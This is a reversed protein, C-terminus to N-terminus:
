VITDDFEGWLLISSCSFNWYHCYVIGLIHVTNVMSVCQYVSMEVFMSGFFHVNTARWTNILVAVTFQHIRKLLIVFCCRSCLVYRVVKHPSRLGFLEILRCFDMDVRWIGTFFCLLLSFRNCDNNLHCCVFNVTQFHFAQSMGKYGFHKSGHWEIFYVESLFLHLKNERSTNTLLPLIHM